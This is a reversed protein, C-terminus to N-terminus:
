TKTWHCLMSQMACRIHEILKSRKAKLKAQPSNSDFSNGRKKILGSPTDNEVYNGQSIFTNNSPSYLYKGSLHILIPHESSANLRTSKFKFKSMQQFRGRQDEM